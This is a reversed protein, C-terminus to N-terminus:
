AKCRILCIYIIYWSILGVITDNSINKQALRQKKKNQKTKNKTQKKGYTKCSHSINFKDEQKTIKM